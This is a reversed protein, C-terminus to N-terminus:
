AEGRAARRFEHASKRLAHALGWLGGIVVLATGLWFLDMAIEPAQKESKVISEKYLLKAEMYGAKATVLSFGNDVELRYTDPGPLRIDREVHGAVREKYVPYGAGNVVRLDIDRNGGELVDLTVTLVPDVAGSPVTFSTYLYHGPKVYFKGSYVIEERPVTVTHRVTSPYAAVVIGIIIIIIGLIALKQGPHL